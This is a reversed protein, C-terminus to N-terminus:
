KKDLGEYFYRFVNGIVCKALSTVSAQMVESPSISLIIKDKSSCSFRLDSKCVVISSIKFFYPVILAPIAKISFPTITRVM